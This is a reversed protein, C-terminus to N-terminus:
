DGGGSAERTHNKMASKGSSRCRVVMKHATKNRINPLGVSGLFEVLRRVVRQNSQQDFGDDFLNYVFLRERPVVCAVWANYVVFDVWADPDKLQRYETQDSQEEKGEQWDAVCPHAGVWSPSYPLHEDHRRQQWVKPDRVGLLVPSDPHSLVLSDIFYAVPSDAIYDYQDWQETNTDFKCPKPGKHHHNRRERDHPRSPPDDLRNRKQPCDTRLFMEGHAPWYGLQSSICGMFRTATSGEAANIIQPLKGQEKRKSQPWAPDALVGCSSKTTYFDAYRDIVEQTNYEAPIAPTDVGAQPSTIFALAETFEEMSCTDRVYRSGLGSGRTRDVLSYSLM